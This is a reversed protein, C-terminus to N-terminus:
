RAKKGICQVVFYCVGQGVFAYFMFFNVGVALFSKKSHSQLNDKSLSSQRTCPLYTSSNHVSDILFVSFIGLM